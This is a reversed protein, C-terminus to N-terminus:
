CDNSPPRSARYHRQLHQFRTHVRPELRVSARPGEVEGNPAHSREESKDTKDPDVYSVIPQALNATPQELHVRLIFPELLTRTTALVQASTSADTTSILM